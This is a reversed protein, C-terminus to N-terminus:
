VANGSLLLVNHTTLSKSKELQSSLDSSFKTINLELSKTDGLKILTKQWTKELILMSFNDALLDSIKESQQNIFSTLNDTNTVTDQKYKNVLKTVAIEVTDGLSIFDNIEIIIKVLDNDAIATLDILSELHSYIATIRDVPLKCSKSLEKINM